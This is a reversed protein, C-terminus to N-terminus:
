LFLDNEPASPGHDIAKGTAYMWHKICFLKKNGIGGPIFYPTCRHGTYCVHRYKCFICEAIEKETLTFPM